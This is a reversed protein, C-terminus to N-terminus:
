FINDRVYQFGIPDVYVPVLGKDTKLDVRYGLSESGSFDIDKFKGVHVDSLKVTTSEGSFVDLRVSFSQAAPSIPLIVMRYISADRRGDIAHIPTNDVYLTLLWEGTGISEYEFAVTDPTGDLTHFTCHAPILIRSEFQLVGNGPYVIKGICQEEKQLSLLPLKRAPNQAADVFLMEEVSDITIASKDVRLRKALDEQAREVMEVVPAYYKRETRKKYM